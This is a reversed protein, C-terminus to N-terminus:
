LHWGPIDLTKNKFLVRKEPECCSKGGQLVDVILFLLTLVNKYIQGRSGLDTGEKIFSTGKEDIAVEVRGISTSIPKPVATVHNCCQCNLPLIHPTPVIVSSSLFNKQPCHKLYKQGLNSTGNIIVLRWHLRKFLLPSPNIGACTKDTDWAISASM